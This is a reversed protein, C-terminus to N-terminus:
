NSGGQEANNTNGSTTTGNVSKVGVILNRVSTRLAKLDQIETKVATRFETIQGKPNSGDCKFSDMNKLNALDTEAKSQAANVAAVLQDYNDLTKGKDTYFKEVRTAITSFLETQKTGRMVVRSMIMNIKDSHKKCVALMNAALKHQGEMTSEHQGSGTDSEPEPTPNTNTYASPQCNTKINDEPQITQTKRYGGQPCAYVHETTTSGSGSSGTGTEAFAAVPVLAFSFALVSTLVTSKILKLKM